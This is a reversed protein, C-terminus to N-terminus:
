KCGQPLLCHSSHNQHSVSLSQINYLSQQLVTGLTIAMSDSMPQQCLDKNQMDSPCIQLRTGSRNASKGVLNWYSNATSGLCVPVWALM